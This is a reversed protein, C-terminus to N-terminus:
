SGPDGDHNLHGIKEEAPEEEAAEDVVTGLHLRPGVTPWTVVLVRRLVLRLVRLLLILALRLLRVWLIYMMRLVLRLPVLLMLM